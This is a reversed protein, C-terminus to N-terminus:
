RAVLVGKVPGYASECVCPTGPPGEQRLTCWLLETQCINTLERLRGHTDPRKPRVQEEEKVVPRDKTEGCLKDIKYESMGTDRLTQKDRATCEGYASGAIFLILLFLGQITSGLM